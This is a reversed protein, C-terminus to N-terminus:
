RRFGGFSQSWHRSGQPRRMEGEKGEYGFGGNDDRGFLVLLSRFLSERSEPSVEKPLMSPSDMSGPAIDGSFLDFDDKHLISHLKHNIRSRFTETEAASASLREAIEFERLGQLRFQEARKQLRPASPTIPIATVVALLTALVIYLISRM